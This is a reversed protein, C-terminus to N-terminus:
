NYWLNCFSIDPNELRTFLTRLFSLAKSSILYARILSFGVLKAATPKAYFHSKIYLPRPQIKQYLGRRFFAYKDSYNYDFLLLLDLFFSLIGIVAPNSFAYFHRMAPPVGKQIAERREPLTPCMRHIYGISLPNHKQVQLPFRRQRKPQYGDDAANEREVM